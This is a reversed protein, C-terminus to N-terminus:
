VSFLPLSLAVRRKAGLHAVPRDVVTQQGELMEALAHSLQPYRKLAFRRIRVRLAFGVPCVCDLNFLVETEL